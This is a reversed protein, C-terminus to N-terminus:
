RSILSVASPIEPLPKGLERAIWYELLATVLKARAAYVPKSHVQDFLLHEVTGATTAPLTLKWQKLLDDSVPRPM